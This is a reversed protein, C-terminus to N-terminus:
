GKRSVTWLRIDHPLSESTLSPPVNFKLHSPSAFNAESFTHKGLLYQLRVWTGRAQAFDARYRALAAHEVTVHFRAGYNLKFSRLHVRVYEADLVVVQEILAVKDHQTALSEDVGGHASSVDYFPKIVDRM